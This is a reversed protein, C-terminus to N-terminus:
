QKTWFGSMLPLVEINWGYFPKGGATGWLEGEGQNWASWRTPHNGSRTNLVGFSPGDKLEM